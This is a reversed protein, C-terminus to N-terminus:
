KREVGYKAELEKLLEVYKKQQADQTLKNLIMEKSEEFSRISEDSKDYVKILHYGFQTKVPNTVKGVESDFAVEEFEPVMMGRKFPGLDGGQEKSPCTSNNKAAEEFTIKGAEIDDKIANAEEETKVLIHKASVSPEEKFYQQNENYFKEAEGETVTVDGLVKNITVQTLLEKALAKVTAKYDDAKDLGIEEGFKSMLEFGITQELLQNRGDETSFYGRKDEPYREIIRNLDAETIENGAAVALIKNEM